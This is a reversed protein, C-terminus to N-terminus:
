GISLQQIVVVQYASETSSMFLFFQSPGTSRPDSSGWLDLDASVLWNGPLRGLNGRGKKESKRQSYSSLTSNLGMLFLSGLPLLDCNQKKKQKKKINYVFTCAIYM